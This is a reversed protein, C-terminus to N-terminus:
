TSSVLAEDPDVFNRPESKFLLFLLITIVSTAAQFETQYFGAAMAPSSNTNNEFLCNLLVIFNGFIASTCMQLSQNRESLM